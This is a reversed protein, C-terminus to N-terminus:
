CVCLRSELLTSNKLVHEVQGQPQAFAGHRVGSGFIVIWLPEVAVSQQPSMQSQCCQSGEGNVSQELTSPLPYIHGSGSSDSMVVLVNSLSSM